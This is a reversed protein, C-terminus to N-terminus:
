RLSRLRELVEAQKEMNQVSRADAVELKSHLQSVAQRLRNIEALNRRNDELLALQQEDLQKCKSAVHCALLQPPAWPTLLEKLQLRWFQLDAFMRFLSEEDTIWSCTEIDPEVTNTAAKKQRLSRWCICLFSFAESILGADRCSDWRGLAWLRVITPVDNEVDAHQRRFLGRLLVRRSLHLADEIYPVHQLLPLDLDGSDWPCEAVQWHEGQRQCVTEEQDPLFGGHLVFVAAFLREGVKRLRLLETEESAGQFVDSDDRQQAVARTSVRCYVTIDQVLDNNLVLDQCHKEERFDELLM